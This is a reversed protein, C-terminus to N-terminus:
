KALMQGIRLAKAYYFNAGRKWVDGAYLEGVTDANLSDKLVGRIQPTAQNCLRKYRPPIMGSVAIIIAKRKKDSRPAPCGKVLVYSKEPKAFTWCIRELFTMMLASAYAMHVPTGIILRDAKLLEENIRDMDDRIACKAVPEDNKMKWCSLCDRCYEINQDALHIKTVSCKPNESIVGEIAKDVLTDTAKGKRPSGVIALVHMLSGGNDDRQGNGLQWKPVKM